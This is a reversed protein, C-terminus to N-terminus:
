IQDLLKNAINQEFGRYALIKKLKITEEFSLGKLSGQKKILLREAKILEKKICYSPPPLGKKQLYAKIYHWSKNKKHLSNATKEALDQPTELWRNQKAKNLAEEIVTSPFKKALKFKLEKESHSRRSLCDAIKKIAKKLEEPSIKEM